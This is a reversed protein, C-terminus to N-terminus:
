VKEFLAPHLANKGPARSAANAELQRAAPVHYRRFTIQIDDDIRFPAHRCLFCLGEAIARHIKRCDNINTHFRRYATKGQFLESAPAACRDEQAYRSPNHERFIGPAIFDSAHIAHLVLGLQTTTAPASLVM